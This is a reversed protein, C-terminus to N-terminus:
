LHKLYVSLSKQALSNWFGPAYGRRADSNSRAGAPLRENMTRKLLEIDAEYDAECVPTSYLQRRRRLESAWFERIEAREAPHLAPAKRYLDNHQGAAGLAKAIAEAEQRDANYKDLFADMKAHLEPTLSM